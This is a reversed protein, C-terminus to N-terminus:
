LHGPFEPLEAVYRPHFGKLWLYNDDIRTATVPSAAINIWIIGALISVLGGGILYGANEGARADLAAFILFIGFVIVLWGLGIERRRRRMRQASLPVRLRHTKRVMMAVIIYPLIGLFLGLYALPTHWSLQRTLHRETPENTKVCRPPLATTRSIVVRKGQRFVGPSNPDGLLEGCHRCKLAVRKITEACFPCKREDDDPLFVDPM